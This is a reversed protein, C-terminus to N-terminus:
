AKQDSSMLTFKALKSTLTKTECSVNKLGQKDAQEDAPHPPPHKHLRSKMQVVDLLVFGEALLLSQSFFFLLPPSPLSPYTDPQTASYCCKLM